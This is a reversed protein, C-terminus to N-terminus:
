STPPPQDPPCPAQVSEDPVPDVQPPPDEGPTAGPSCALVGLLSFALTSAHRNPTSM